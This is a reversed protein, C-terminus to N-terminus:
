APKADRQARLRLVLVAIAAGLSAVAAIAMLDAGIGLAFSDVGLEDNAEAVVMGWGFRVAVAVAALVVAIAVGAIARRRTFAENTTGFMVIVLVLVVLFFSWTLVVLAQGATKVDSDSVSDLTDMADRADDVHAKKAHKHAHQLLADAAKEGLKRGGTAHYKEMLASALDRERAAKYLSISARKGLSVGGIQLEVGPLFVAIASAVAFAISLWAAIRM